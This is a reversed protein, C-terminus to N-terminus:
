KSNMDTSLEVLHVVFSSTSSVDTGLPCTIRLMMIDVAVQDNGQV